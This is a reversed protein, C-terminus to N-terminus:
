AVRGRALVAGQKRDGSGVGSGEDEEGAKEGFTREMEKERWGATGQEARSPGHDCGREWAKGATLRRGRDQRM